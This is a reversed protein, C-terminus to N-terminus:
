VTADEVLKQSWYLSKSWAKKFYKYYAIPNKISYDRYFKIFLTVKFGRLQQLTSNKTRHYMIQPSPKPLVVDGEWPFVHPKRFGGVPAKLHLMQIQPAYIVDYGANRIQMGYDTDEGYGHELAADFSCKEVVERHVISCGSGFASWQSVVKRNEQEGKQLCSFTLVKTDTRNLEEIIQTTFDTTVRVDDDFFLVWPAKTRMIAKNRANCAGTQHIFEHVIEFPWEETKLYDLDSSSNTDGNQEFIIVKQPRIVQKSLDLLVDKLYTVRGMTPIVVDYQKKIHDCYLNNHISEFDLTLSLQKKLIAKMLAYFPFRQEYWVHCLLLFFIWSKKKTQAIFSYVDSYKKQTTSATLQSYCFLGQSQVSKTFLNLDYIWKGSSKFTLEQQLVSAHILGMDESMLWTPYWQDDVFNIFPTDEVYDISNSLFAPVAGRSLVKYPVTAKQVLEDWDSEPRKRVTWGIHENPFKRALEQLHEFTSGTSLEIEDGNFYGKDLKPNSHTVIIIM